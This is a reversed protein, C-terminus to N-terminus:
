KLSSSTKHLHQELNAQHFGEVNTVNCIISTFDSARAWDNAWMRAGCLWFLLLLNCIENVRCLHILKTEFIGRFSIKMSFTILSSHLLGENGFLSWIKSFLLGMTRVAEAVETIHFLTFNTQETIWGCNEREEKRKRISLHRSDIWFRALQTYKTWRM